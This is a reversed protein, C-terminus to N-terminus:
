AQKRQGFNIIGTVHPRSIGFRDALQQHTVGGAAYLSRIEAVDSNSLRATPSAEGVPHVLPVYRNRGKAVMDRANALADGLFLHSHRVCSMNDCHHLVHGDEPLDGHELLWAFRHAGITEQKLGRFSGYGKGLKGGTWLWCPGLEPRHAPIPGNRDVHSWFLERKRELVM